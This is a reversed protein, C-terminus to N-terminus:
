IIVVAKFRNRWSVESWWLIICPVDCVSHFKEKVEMTFCYFRNRKKTKQKKKTQKKILSANGASPCLGDFVDSKKQSHNKSWEGHNILVPLFISKTVSLFPPVIPTWRHSMFISKITRQAPVLLAHPKHTKGTRGREDKNVREFFIHPIGSYNEFWRSWKEIVQVMCHQVM